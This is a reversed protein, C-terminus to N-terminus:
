NEPVEPRDNALCLLSQTRYFARAYDSIQTANVCQNFGLSIKKPHQCHRNQVHKRKLSLSLQPCGLIKICLTLLLLFKCQREPSMRTLSLDSYSSPPPYLSFTVQFDTTEMLATQRYHQAMSGPAIVRFLTNMDPCVQQNREMCFLQDTYKMARASAVPKLIFM